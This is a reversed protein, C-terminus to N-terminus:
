RFLSKTGAFCAFCAFNSSGVGRSDDKAIQKGKMSRMVQQCMMAVMDSSIRAAATSQIPVSAPNQDLPTDGYDVRANDVLKYGITGGWM